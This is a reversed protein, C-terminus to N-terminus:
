WTYAVILMGTPTADSKRIVKLDADIFTVKNNNLPSDAVTLRGMKIVKDGEVLWWEQATGSYQGWLSGTANNRLLDATEPIELASPNAQKQEGWTFCYFRGRDDRLVPLSTGSSQFALRRPASLNYDLVLSFRKGGVTLVAYVNTAGLWLRDPINLGFDYSATQAGTKDLLAITQDNMTLYSQSTENWDFFRLRTTLNPCPQSGLWIGGADYRNLRQHLCDAVVIEGNAKVIFFPPAWFGQELKMIGIQGEGDGYPLSVRSKEELAALPLTVALLLLLTTIRM